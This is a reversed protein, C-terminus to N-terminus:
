TDATVDDWDEAYMTIWNLAIHREYIVGSNLNAPIPKNNLRAEKVAWHIRYILDTQNLIEESNRLTSNKIWDSPDENLSPLFNYNRFDCISDPFSLSDFKNLAWFLVNLAENHWSMRANEIKTKEPNNLYELEEPSVHELLNYKKFYESIEISSRKNYPIAILGYLIVARCAINYKAQIRVNNFDEILPLHDSVELNISKLFRNTYEKREVASLKHDTPYITLFTQCNLNNENPM